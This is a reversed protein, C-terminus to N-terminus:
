QRRLSFSIQELVGFAALQKALGLAAYEGEHEKDEIVPFDIVRQVLEWDSSVWSAITGAFTFTMARTTEGLQKMDIHMTALTNRVTTDSPLLYRSHLFAFLRKIGETEGTTFALDDEIIWAAFVKLCNSQTSNIIPNLKGESLFEGMIKSSSASPTRTEGPQTDAPPPVGDHDQRVHTALNGLKPAPSEDGFFQDKRVTRVFSLCRFLGFNALSPLFSDSSTRKATVANLHGASKATSSLLSLRFSISGPIPKLVANVARLVHRSTRLSRSKLLTSKPRHLHQLPSHKRKGRPPAAAVGDVVLLKRKKSGKAPPSAADAIVDDFDDDEEELLAVAQKKPRYPSTTNTAKAPAPASKKSKKAGEAQKPVSGSKRAASAKKAAESATMGSLFELEKIVRVLKLETGGLDMDPASWKISRLYKVVTAMGFEGRRIHHLRGNVRCKSDEAFLIDFRRNFTSAANGEDHGHMTTFVRYIESNERGGRDGRRGLCTLLPLSRRYKAAQRNHAPPKGPPNM